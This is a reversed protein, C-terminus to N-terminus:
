RFLYVIFDIFEVSEIYARFVCGSRYTSQIHSDYLERPNHTQEALRLLKIGDNNYILEGLECGM